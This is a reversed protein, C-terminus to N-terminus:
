LAITSIIIGVAAIREVTAYAPELLTEGFVDPDLEEIELSAGIARALPEIADLLPSRGGVFACGTYLLMTRDGVGREFAQRVWNLAVEGGMLGGGDRYLRHAADVLYPPNAIVLNGTEPVCTAEVLKAPVGAVAANIEALLLANPNSDVMVARAGTLRSIMVGGAGSGAGMDMVTKPEPFKELFASAFRCFRYTDPGFFVANQQATPFASHFFLQDGISAVRLRTKLLGERQEVIGGDIALELLIPELEEARFSRNWGFIDRLDAVAPRDRALVIQHTSPAVATFQYRRLKLQRLLEILAQDNM